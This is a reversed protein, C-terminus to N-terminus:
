GRHDGASLVEYSESTLQTILVDEFTSPGRTKTSGTCLYFHCLSMLGEAAALIRLGCHNYTPRPVSFWRTGPPHTDTDPTDYLSSLFSPKGDPFIAQAQHAQARGLSGSGFNHSASSCLGLLSQHLNLEDTVRVQGLRHLPTKNVHVLFKKSSTLM